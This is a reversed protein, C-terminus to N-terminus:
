AEQWRTKLGLEGYVMPIKLLLSSRTIKAFYFLESIRISIVTKLYCLKQLILKTIERKFNM